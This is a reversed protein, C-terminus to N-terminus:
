TSGDFHTRNVMVAKSCKPLDKLSTAGLYACCSRLGGCIENMADKVPGKYSIKKIRGESAKYDAMGGNHKDQAKESSMGYFLLNKKVKETRMAGTVKVEEEVYHEEYEWEGECEDTGALM